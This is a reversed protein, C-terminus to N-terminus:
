PSYAQQRQRSGFSTARSPVTLKLGFDGSEPSALRRLTIGDTSCFGARDRFLRATVGADMPGTGRAWPCALPSASDQVAELRRRDLGCAMPNHETETTSSPIRLPPESRHAAM